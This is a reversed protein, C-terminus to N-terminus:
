KGAVKDIICEIAHAILIAVIREAMAISFSAVLWGM